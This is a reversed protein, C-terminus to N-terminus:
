MALISLSIRSFALRKSNSFAALSRSAILSSLVFSNKNAYHKASVQFRFGLEGVGVEVWRKAKKWARGSSHLKRARRIAGDSQPRAHLGRIETGRAATEVPLVFQPLQLVKRIHRNNHTAYSLTRLMRIGRRVGAAIRLRFPRFSSTAPVRNGTRRNGVCVVKRSDPHSFSVVHSIHRPQFSLVGNPHCQGSRWM